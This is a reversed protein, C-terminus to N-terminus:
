QWAGDSQTVPGDRTGAHSRRPPTALTTSRGEEGRGEEEGRMAASGLETCLAESFNVVRRGHARTLYNSVAYPLRRLSIMQQERIPPPPPARTVSAPQGAGM